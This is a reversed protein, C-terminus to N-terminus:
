ATPTIVAPRAAPSPPLQRSCPTSSCRSIQSVPCRRSDGAGDAQPHAARRSRLLEADFTMGIQMLPRLRCCRAQALGDIFVAWGPALVPPDSTPHRLCRWASSRRPQAAGAPLGPDRLPELHRARRRGAGGAVHLLHPSGTIRTARVTTEFKDPDGLLGAGVYIILPAAPRGATCVRGAGARHRRM